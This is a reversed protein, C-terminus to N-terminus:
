ASIHTVQEYEDLHQDVYRSNRASLKVPTLVGPFPNRLSLLLVACHYRVLYDANSRLVRLLLAGAEEFTTRGQLAYWIEYYDGYKGHAIAHLLEHPPREQYSAFEARAGREWHEQYDAYSM